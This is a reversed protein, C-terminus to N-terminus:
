PCEKQNDVKLQVGREELIALEPDAMATLCNSILDLTSNAITGFNTNEVLPEINRIQNNRASVLRLKSLNKLSSLDSVNNNNMFLISLNEFNQVFSIDDISTGSVNLYTLSSVQSLATIQNKELKTDGLSVERLNPLTILPTLDSIGNNGLDIRILTEPDPVFSLLKSLDSIGINNLGIRQLGSIKKLDALAEESLPNGGVVVFNLSPLKSLTSIDTIQNNEISLLKLNKLSAVSELESINNNNVFLRELNTSYQIGELSTIQASNAILQKLNEMDQCTITGETKKLAKGVANELNTDAFSVAQNEECQPQPKEGSSTETSTEQSQIEHKQNNPFGTSAGQSRIEHELDNLDETLAEESQIEDKQDDPLETNATQSQFGQNSSTEINDESTGPTCSSASIILMLIIILASWCYKKM